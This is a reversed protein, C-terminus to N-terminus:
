TGIKNEIHSTQVIHFVLKQEQIRKILDFRLDYISWFHTNSTRFVFNKNEMGLEDQFM